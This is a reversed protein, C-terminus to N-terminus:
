GRQRRAEYLLVAAAASVNLSDAVGLMPLRVATVDPAQWLSSLGAAENGLVLATPRRYDVETYPVSGDVRAAVVHLGRERLWALAEPGSAEAVSLTFLTGLSARVANPNFLDTRPDAVVVADVGAGDASRLVAGVNGPKEIAELVAVLPKAPLRVAGLSTCPPEAVAVVGESRQGFALKTFVSEAVEFWEAGTPRLRELLAAAHEGGCLAPCVFVEQLVVGAAIARGIERVGDILLRRQSRRQRADRLRVARKVRPNQASTIQPM